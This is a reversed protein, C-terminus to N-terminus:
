STIRAQSDKVKVKATLYGQIDIAHGAHVRRGQTDKFVIVLLLLLVTVLIYIRIFIQKQNSNQKSICRSFSNALNIQQIEVIKLFGLNKM